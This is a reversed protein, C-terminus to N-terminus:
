DTGEEIKLGYYTTQNLESKMKKDLVHLLSLQIDHVADSQIDCFKPGVGGAKLFNLLKNVYSNSSFVTKLLDLTQSLFVPRQSLSSNPEDHINYLQKRKHDGELSNKHEKSHNHKM